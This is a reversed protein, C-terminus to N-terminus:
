SPCGSMSSSSSPAPSPSRCRIAASSRCRCGPTSCGRCICSARVALHPHRGQRPDAELCLDQGSLEVVAAAHRRSLVAGEMQRACLAGRLLRDPLRRGGLGADGAGGDDGHAPHHRSQRSAAARWLDEAHVRPQDPRLVRRDLLLEAAAARVALRSLRHRAVAGAADADPVAAAEAPALVPRVARRALRRPGAPDAPRRLASCAAGRSMGARGDSAPRARNFALTVAQAKPPCPQAPRCSPTCGCRRRRRRGARNTAGLYSRRCSPRAAVGDGAPVAVRDGRAAPQGLPAPRSYREVFDPPLVNSSGVFDAVFRTKPRQYIEEPTGIQMIRGDNFVAVRDAM